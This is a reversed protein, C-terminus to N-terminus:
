DAPKKCCFVTHDSGFTSLTKSKSKQRNEFECKETVVLKNEELSSENSVKFSTLYHEFLYENM